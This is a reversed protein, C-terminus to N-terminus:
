RELAERDSIENSLRREELEAGERIAAHCAARLNLTSLTKGARWERLAEDQAAQEVADDEDTMMM